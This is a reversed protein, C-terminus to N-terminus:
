ARSGDDEQFPTILETNRNFYFGMNNDTQISTLGLPYMVHLHRYSENITITSELSKTEVRDDTWKLEEFSKL